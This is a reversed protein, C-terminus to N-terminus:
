AEIRGIVRRLRVKPCISGLVAEIVPKQSLAANELEVLLVDTIQDFSRRANLVAILAVQLPPLSPNFAANEIYAGSHVSGDSLKIAVGSHAKTYPAYSSCAASLAATTLTDSAKRVLVIRARNVPLAGQKFGLDNPGFASPLLSKLRIPEHGRVLVNIEGNPSLEELFQRCHGCPAATVAIAILGDDGHMYANSSAAQEAHVTFGLSQGPIELNAGLYITGSTGRAVAGVRFNSIPPRALMQAVPLLELIVEDATKGESKQLKEAQAASIRGRFDHSNLIDSVIGQGEHTFTKIADRSRDSSSTRSPAPITQQAFVAYGSVGLISLAARRDIRKDFM